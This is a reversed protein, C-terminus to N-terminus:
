SVPHVLTQQRQQQRGPQGAHVAPAFVVKLSLPTKLLRGALDEATRSVLSRDV